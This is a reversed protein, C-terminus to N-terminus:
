KRQDNLSDRVRGRERMTDLIEKQAAFIFEAFHSDFEEDAM